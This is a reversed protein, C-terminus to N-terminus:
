WNIVRDLAVDLEELEWPEANRRKIVGHSTMMKYVCLHNGDVGFCHGTIHAARDSALYAVLPAIHEPGLTGPATERMGPLDETMRTIAAPAIANVTIRHKALEWAAIRSLAYIGAKAAGYNSQGFNGLLGSSSSTSIIRGGHGQEVMQRAAAQLCTFTGNLHVDLVSTWEEPTMKLITRDRLIGANNVLIDLKGFREVAFRVLRQANAFSGVAEKHAAATGGAADIERVVRDAADGVGEGHRDCGPDNVVVKAGHRAFHLAHARGIGNGSGTVIAVKGDLMGM